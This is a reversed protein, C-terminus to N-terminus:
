AFLRKLVTVGDKEFFYLKSSAIVRIEWGCSGM